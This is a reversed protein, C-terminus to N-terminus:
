APDRNCDDAAPSAREAPARRAAGRAYATLRVRRLVACCGHLIFVTYLSRGRPPVASLNGCGSESKVKNDGTENDGM